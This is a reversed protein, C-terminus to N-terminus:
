FIPPGSPVFAGLYPKVSIFPKVEDESWVNGISSGRIPSFGGIDPKVLCIPVVDEKSWINGISSGTVPSFGGIDPKVVVVAVVESKEWSPPAQAAVRKSSAWVGVIIGICLGAAFLTLRSLKM